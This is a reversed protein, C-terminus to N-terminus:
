LLNLCKTLLSLVLDALLNEIVRRFFSKFSALLSIEISLLKSPVIIFFMTLGETSFSYIINEFVISALNM